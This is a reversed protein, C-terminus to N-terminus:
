RVIIVSCPAHEAVRYAVSGLLFQAVAGHGQHGMVILDPKWVNSTQLLEDAVNQSQHLQTEVSSATAELDVKVSEIAQQSAQVEDDWGASTHQIADMNFAEVLEIVRVILVEIARKWPYSKLFEVAKKSYDSVDHALLIRLKEGAPKAPGRHIMVSCEAHRIIKSSVSGLLFKEFGSKRQSGVAIVDVNLAKSSAIIEHAPIGEILHSCQKWNAENFKTTSNELAFAAEKRMSEHMEAAIIMSEYGFTRYHPPYIVSVIEAIAKTSDTIEILFDETALAAESGDHALLFKM